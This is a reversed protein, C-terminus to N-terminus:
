SQHTISGIYENPPAQVTAELYGFFNGEIFQDPTLPLQTPPVPMPRCMATPYLSNVDYYYGQGLLHPQYVDVIGGHYAARFTPDLPQKLYTM